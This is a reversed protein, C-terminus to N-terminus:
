SPRKVGSEKVDRVLKDRLPYTRKSERRVFSPTLLNVPIGSKDFKPPHVYSGRTDESLDEVLGKVLENVVLGNSKSHLDCVDKQAVRRIDESTILNHLRCLCMVMRICKSHKFRMPCWLIGFRGVLRGFACEVIIRLSSIAYNYNDQDPPCEGTFPSVLYETNGYAADGIIFYGIPMLKKEEMDEYEKMYSWAVVDNASGACSIDCALFRGDADVIAQMNLAYFSKRCYFKKVNSSDKNSPRRIKILLGDIAGVCGKIAQNRSRARFGAEINKMQDMNTIDYEMKFAENIADVVRWVHLYFTCDSVGYQSGLDLYSAGAFFRLSFALSLEPRVYEDRNSYRQAKELPGRIKKLIKVFTSYPMRFHRRFKCPSYSDLKSEWNLRVLVSKRKRKRTPESSKSEPAISNVSVYSDASLCKGSLFDLRAKSTELLVLPHDTPLIGFMVLPLVCSDKNIMANLPSPFM